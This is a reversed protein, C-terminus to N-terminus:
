LQTLVVQPLYKTKPQLLSPSHRPFFRVIVGYRTSLSILSFHLPVIISTCQPFCEVLSTTYLGHARANHSGRGGSESLKTECNKLKTLFGCVAHCNLQALLRRHFQGVFKGFLDEM